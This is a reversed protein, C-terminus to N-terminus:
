GRNTLSLFIFVGYHYTVIKKLKKGKVNKSKLKKIKNVRTKFSEPKKELLVEEEKETNWGVPEARPMHKACFYHDKAWKDLGKGGIDSNHYHIGVFRFHVWWDCDKSCNLWHSDSEIDEESQYRVKCVSCFESSSTSDFMARKKKQPTVVPTVEAAPEVNTSDNVSQQHLDKYYESKFYWRKGRPWDPVVDIFVNCGTINNIRKGKQVLHMARTRYTDRKSRGSRRTETYIKGNKINVIKRAKPTSSDMKYGLTLYFSFLM